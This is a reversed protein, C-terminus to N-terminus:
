KTNRITWEKGSNAYRLTVKELFKANSLFHEVLSLDEMSGEFGRIEIEKLHFLFCPPLSHPYHQGPPANSGGQDFVLTGLRPSNKLLKPLMAWLVSLDDVYGGSDGIELHTLSHFKPMQCDPSRIAEIFELSLYLSQVNSIGRLLDEIGESYDNPRIYEHGIDIHAKVLRCLPQIVQQLENVSKWTYFLQPTSCLRTSSFMLRM